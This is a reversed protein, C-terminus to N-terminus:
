VTLYIIKKFTDMTGPRLETYSCNKYIRIGSNYIDFYFSLYVLRFIPFYVNSSFKIWFSIELEFLFVTLILYFLLPRKKIFDTIQSVSAVILSVHCLFITKHKNLAPLCILMPSKSLIYLYM